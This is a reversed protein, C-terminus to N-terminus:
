KRRSLGSQARGCVPSCCTSSKHKPIFPQGCFVCNRPSVYPYTRNVLILGALQQEGMVTHRSAHCPKCLLVLNADTNNSPDSDIHHVQLGKDSGCDQCIKDRAKIHDRLSRKSAPRIHKTEKWNPNKEKSFMAKMHATRCPISCCVKQSSPPVDFSNGCIPCQRTERVAMKSAALSYRCRESCTARDHKWYPPLHFTTGCVICIKQKAM